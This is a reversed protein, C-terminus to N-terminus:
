RKWLNLSYTWDGFYPSDGFDQELSYKNFFSPVSASTLGIGHSTLGCRDGIGGIMMVAGDLNGSDCWFSIKDASQINGDCKADIFGETTEYQGGYQVTCNGLCHKDDTGWTTGNRFDGYSTIKSRFTQRGLCDSTTQLLATHRSDDSRTIKFENGSILWFAPSIMDTNSSPEATEGDTTNKNYWWEGTDEMWNEVDDNSFRAILTWVQAASEM